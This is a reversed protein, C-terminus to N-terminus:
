ELNRQHKCCSILDIGAKSM